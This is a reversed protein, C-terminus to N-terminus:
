EHADGIELALAQGLRDLLQAPGGRDAYSSRRLDQFLPLAATALRQRYSEPRDGFELRIGPRADYTQLAVLLPTFLQREATRAAGLTALRSVAFSSMFESRDTLAGGIGPHMALVRAFLLTFPPFPAADGTEPHRLARSLAMALGRHEVNGWSWILNCASRVDIRPYTRRARTVSWFGSAFSDFWADSTLAILLRANPFSHGGQIGYARRLSPGTRTSGTRGLSGLQHPARQHILRLANDPDALVEDGLTGSSQGSESRRLAYVLGDVCRDLVRLQAESLAQEFVARTLFGDDVWRHPRNKPCAFASASRALNGERSALHHPSFRV